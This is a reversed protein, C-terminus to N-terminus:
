SGSKVQEQESGPWIVVPCNVLINDMDVDAERAAKSSEWDSISDFEAEDVFDHRWLSRYLEDGPLTDFVNHTNGTDPETKMGKAPDNDQFVVRVVAYPIDLPGPNLVSIETSDFTFYQVHKGKYWGVSEWKALEATSGYPVLPCNIITSTRELEFGAAKIGDLSRVSNPEYDDPVLVMVKQWFDNYGEEGPIVDFVSSQERVRRTPDSAYVFSYLPASQFSVVDLMYYNVDEGAPGLAHSLFDDDFNIPENPAPLDPNVSRRMVTGADNSFRDVAVFEIGTDPNVHTPFAAVEPEATCAAFTATLAVALIGLLSRRPIEIEIM